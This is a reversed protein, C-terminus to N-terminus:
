SARGVRLSAIDARWASAVPDWTPDAGRRRVQWKRFALENQARVIARGIRPPYGPVTRLGYAPEALLLDHEAPTIAQGIEDDLGQRIVRREWRGSWVIAWGLLLFPLALILVNAVATGFWLTSLPVQDLSEVQGNGTAALWLGILVGEFLNNAQHALIAAVLGGFPAAIRIWRRDTQRALGLGAGFLATFVVHGNFGLFVFRVAFQQGFAANGNDLYGNLVYFAVELANFGLGVLAGYVIGDRVGNFENRLLWFIALVALAKLCEEIIPGVLVAVALFAVAASGPDSTGADGLAGQQLQGAIERDVLTNLLLALGTAVFGGWALTAAFLWPSERERRDLYWLVAIAPLSAAIALGFAAGYVLVAELPEGSLSMAHVVVALVVLLILVTAAALAVPRRRLPSDHLARALHSAAPNDPPPPPVPLPVAPQAPGPPTALWEPPPPPPPPVFARAPPVSPRGLAPLGDDRPPEAPEQASM